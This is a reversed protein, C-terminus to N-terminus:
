LGCSCTDFWLFFGHKNYVFPLAGVIAVHPDIICISDRISDLTMVHVKIQWACSGTWMCPMLNTGASASLAGSPQCISPLKGASMPSPSILPIVKSRGDIQGRHRSSQQLRMLRPMPSNELPVLGQRIKDEKLGGCFGAVASQPKRNEDDHM